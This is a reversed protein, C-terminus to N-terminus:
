KNQGSKLIEETRVLVTEPLISDMCLMKDTKRRCPIEGYVSCPRCDVEDPSIFISNEKPQCIASFGLRPDTPGWISVTPVGALSALHMNASDMSIFVDMSAMLILEAGSDSRGAENIVRETVFGNLKEREDAGGFLHVERGEKSLLKVILQNVYEPNWNKTVHRSLPAIGIRVTGNKPALSISPFVPLASVESRIGAKVFVQCYRITAHPLSLMRNGRIIKHREKRYKSILFVPSLTLIFFFDIIYTRIVGHLDIVKSIRFQRLELYLKILGIIGKHKGAPEFGVPSLRDIGNFYGTFRTRTLFIISLEPNQRLTEQLVPLTLLVDGMSSLRIVLVTSM